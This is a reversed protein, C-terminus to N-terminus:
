RLSGVFYGFAFITFAVLCFVGWHKRAEEASPTGVRRKIYELSQYCQGWSAELHALRNIVYEVNEELSSKGKVGDEEM